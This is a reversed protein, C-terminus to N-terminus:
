PTQPPSEVSGPTTQNGTKVLVPVDAPLPSQSRVRHQKDYNKKQQEKYKSDSKRFEELFQWDPIFQSATQPLTTRVKRGMLLETPSRGCWHLPTAKYNLIALYPDDSKQLLKKM